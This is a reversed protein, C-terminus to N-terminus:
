RLRAPWPPPIVPRISSGFGAKFSLAGSALMGPLGLRRSASPLPRHIGHLPIMVIGEVYGAWGSFMVTRPGAYQSAECPLILQHRIKDMVLIVESVLMCGCGFRMGGYVAGLRWECHLAHISISPMALRGHVRHVGNCFFNCESLLVGLISYILEEPFATSNKM